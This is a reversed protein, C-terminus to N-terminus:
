LNRRIEELDKITQDKLTEDADNFLQLITVSFVGTAYAYSQYRDVSKEVIDDILQKIDM